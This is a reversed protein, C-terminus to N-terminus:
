TIIIMCTPGVLNRKEENPWCYLFCSFKYPASNYGYVLSSQCSLTVLFDLRPVKFDGCAFVLIYLMIYLATNKGFYKVPM